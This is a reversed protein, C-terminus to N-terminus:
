AQKEIRVISNRHGPVAGSVLVLNREPDALVIRLGKQTVNASGYHGAMKTGPWVRGPSSGAGISGPSRHRDSQGHTKPGGAFGHRRVVGSFGHGKSVGSVKVKVGTEFLNALIKQGVEFEGLDKVNFEQLHRFRGGSREMHGALPKSLSKATLFGVQVAEYGNRAATKVQTVVCPGVEIATVPIARGDDMYFTTMGVKRGILGSIDPATALVEQPEATEEAEPESGSDPLDEAVPVAPEPETKEVAAEPEAEAAAEGEVPTTEATAPRAETKIATAESDAVAETSSETPTSDEGSAEITKEGASDEGSNDPREQEDM